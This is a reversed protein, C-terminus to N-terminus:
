CHQTGIVEGQAELQRLLKEISDLTSKIHGFGTGSRPLNQLKSYLFEVIAEKKGFRERLRDIAMKYNDKTVPIGSIVTLATGRLVSKLYVFKTVDPLSQEHITSQFVDWFEQWEHLKGDFLPLQLKPLNVKAETLSELKKDSSKEVEL